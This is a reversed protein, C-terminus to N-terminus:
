LSPRKVFYQSFQILICTVTKAKSCIYEKDYKKHVSHSIISKATYPMQLLLLFLMPINVCEIPKYSIDLLANAEM